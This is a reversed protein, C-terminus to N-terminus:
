IQALNVELDRIRETQARMKFKLFLRQTNPNLSFESVDSINDTAESRFIYRYSEWVTSETLDKMFTLDDIRGNMMEIEDNM